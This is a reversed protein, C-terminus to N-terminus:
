SPGASLGSFEVTDQLHVIFRSVIRTECEETDSPQQYGELVTQRICTQMLIRPMAVEAGDLALAPQCRLPGVAYASSASCLLLLM